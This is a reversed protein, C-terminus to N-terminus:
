GPREPILVFFATLWPQDSLRLRRLARPAALLLLGALTFFGSLAVGSGGAASGGVASSPAPAPAPIAPHSGGTSEGYGDDPPGTRSGTPIRFGAARASLAVQAGLWGARCNDTMTGAMGSLECSLEAARQAASLGVVPVGDASAAAGPATPPRPSRGASRVALRGLLVSSAEVPAADTAAGDQTAAASPSPLAGAIQGPSPTAVSLAAEAATAAIPEASALAAEAIPKSPPTVEAPGLETVPTVPVNVEAPPAPEPAPVVPPAPPPTVEVVPVTPPQVVVVVPPTPPPTVEVVPGPPTTTETSPPEPASPLSTTSRPTPESASGDSASSRFVSEAVSASAGAAFTLLLAIAIVGACLLGKALIRTSFNQTIGLV